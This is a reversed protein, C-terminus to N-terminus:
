TGEVHARAKQADFTLHAAELAADRFKAHTEGTFGRAFDMMKGFLGMGRTEIEGLLEVARTHDQTAPDDLTRVGIILLDERLAIPESTVVLPCSQVTGEGHAVVRDGPQLRLITDYRGTPSVFVTVAGLRGTAIAHYIPSNLGFIVSPTHNSSM